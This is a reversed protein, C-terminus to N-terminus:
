CSENSWRYTGYGSEWVDYGSEWVYTTSSVPGDRREREVCVNVLWEPWSVKKKELFLYPPLNAGFLM